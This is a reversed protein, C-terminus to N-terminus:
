NGSYQGDTVRELWQVAGGTLVLHTMRMDPSAGHWHKVGAPCIVVDGARTEIKPKGESQTWCVGETIFMRQGTEHIHWNTRAGPEFTVYAASTNSENDPMYIFRVSVEGTFNENGGSRATMETHRIVRQETLSNKKGGVKDDCRAMRPAPLKGAFSFAAWV